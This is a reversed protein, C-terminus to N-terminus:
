LEHWVGGEYRGHYGGCSFVMTVNPIMVWKEHWPGGVLFRSKYLGSVKPIRM